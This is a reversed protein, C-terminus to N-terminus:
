PWASTVALRRVHRPDAQDVPVTGLPALALLPQRGETVLRLEVVVLPRRESPLDARVQRIHIQDIERAQRRVAALDRQRQAAALVRPLRRDDEDVAIRRLDLLQLSEQRVRGVGRPAPQLGCGALWRAALRRRGDKRGRRDVCASWGDFLEADLGAHADASRPAGLCKASDSFSKGAFTENVAFAEDSHSRKRTNTRLRRSSSACSTAM